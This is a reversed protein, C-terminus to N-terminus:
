KCGTATTECSSDSKGSARAGSGSASFPGYSVSASAKTSSDSLYSQIESTEGTIELVINAALL